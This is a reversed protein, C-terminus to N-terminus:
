RFFYSDVQIVEGGFFFLFVKRFWWSTNRSLGPLLIEMQQWEEQELLAANRHRLELVSAQHELESRYNQENLARLEQWAFLMQAHFLVRNRCLLISPQFGFLTTQFIINREIPHIKHEMGLNRPQIHRSLGLYIYSGSKGNPFFTMPNSKPHPRTLHLISTLSMIRGSMGLWEMNLLVASGESDVIMSGASYIHFM